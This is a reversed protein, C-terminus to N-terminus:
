HRDQALEAARADAREADVDCSKAIRRLLVATRPWDADCLEAWRRYKAAERRELDGGDLASRLGRPHQAGDQFGRDLDDSDAEEIADCIAECPWMTVEDGPKPWSALMRGIQSDAFELHGSDLCLSRATEMWQALREADISGDSQTGPIRNWNMLVRHGHDFLKLQEKTSKTDSEQEDTSPYVLAILKAFAEPDESLYRNLTAPSAGIGDLLRLYQWELHALRLTTPEVVKLDIVEQLWRFIGQITRFTENHPAIKNAAKWRLFAELTEMVISPSVTLRGHAVGALVSLASEPRDTEMLRQCAFETDQQDLDHDLSGHLEVIRWYVRVVGDGLTEAFNWADRTFPAQSLFTATDHVSWTELGLTRAWAWGASHLRGSAYAQALLRHNDNSSRLLDPLIQDDAVCQIQALTGGVMGASEVIDALNLVGDFGDQEVIERLADARQQSAAEMMAVPNRLFGELKVTSAFLWAHRDLLGDPQWRSLAQELADVADAPLSWRADAFDRHRSITKRVQETLTRRGESDLEDVSLDQLRDILQDRYNEPMKQLDDFVDSWRAVDNGVLEVILEAAADTQMRYDADTTGEQWGSVWDRWIPRYTLDATSHNGPLMAFLVKWTVDPTRKALSRLVAIRKEVGATTQPYWTLLIEQLSAIPRNGGVERNDLEVLKALIRCVPLLWEPSWALAELAWLLGAHHCRSPVRDIQDGAFLKALEPRTKMLDADIAEIFQEPAAEALLPLLGGLTAWRLWSADELTSRVITRARTEAVPLNAAPGFGAGLIAVTECIGRRLFISASPKATGNISARISSKFREDASLRLLEDDQCLVEIAITEFSQLLDGTVYAGVLSWADEPSVLRWRSEVRTLPPDEIKAMSQLEGYPTKGSLRSLMERDFETAEDWAGILLMPLFDAIRPDSCWKPFQEDPVRSLHRKLVSLSGGAARAASEATEADFASKRLATKMEYRSPRQLSMPKLKHNAFHTAAILVRHGHRVARSLDESTLARALSPIPLLNLAGSAESLGDWQARERVVITRSQVRIRDDEDMAFEHDEIKTLTLYAATFDLAEVPSRCEVAKVGPMGLLFSKLEEVNKERSALFVNPQFPPYTLRSLCDWYDSISIVGPPRRGLQEAMWADVGPALELWAKLDSSDYVEVSKWRGLKRKEDRWKQKGDWKRSTVFIFTVDSPPLGLPGKKRARYDQEAKTAPSQQASIEWASVGVPVFLSQNAAEVIGDWGHRQVGEGSPIEIRTPQKTSAYVLQRVLTPLTGQAQRTSSWDELYRAKVWPDHLRRGLRRFMQEVAAAREESVVSPLKGRAIAAHGMFQQWDDSGEELQLAEAYTRLLHRSEPPNKIGRELRSINGKDFGNQRCFESLSLGLATRRSRFFRGFEQHTKPM